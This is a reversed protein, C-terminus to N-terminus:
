GEKLGFIPEGPQTQRHHPPDFQQGEAGLTLDAPREARQQFLQRQRIQSYGAAVNREAQRLKRFLLASLQEIAV